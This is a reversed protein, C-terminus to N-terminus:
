VKVGEFKNKLLFADCNKRQKRRLRRLTNLAHRRADTEKLKNEKTLKVGYKFANVLLEQFREEKLFVTKNNIM